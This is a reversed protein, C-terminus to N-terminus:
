PRAEIWEWGAEAPGLPDGGPLRVAIRETVGDSTIRVVRDPWPSLSPRVVHVHPDSSSAPLPTDPTVSATSWTVAIRAALAERFRQALAESPAGTGVSLFIVM